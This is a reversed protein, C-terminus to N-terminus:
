NGDSSAQSNKAADRLLDKTYRERKKAIVIVDDLFDKLAPDRFYELAKKSSYKVPEGTYPDELNDWDLLVTKATARITVDLLEEATLEGDRAAKLDRETIRKVEKLFQSNEFRAVKLRIGHYYDVWVGQEEKDLDTGVLRGM